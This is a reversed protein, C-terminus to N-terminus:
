SYKLTKATSLNFCFFHCQQQVCTKKSNENIKPFANSMAINNDANKVSIRVLASVNRYIISDIHKAVNLCFTMTSYKKNKKRNQM